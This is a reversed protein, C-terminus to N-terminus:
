VQHQQLAMYFIKLRTVNKQLNWQRKIVCRFSFSQIAVQGIKNSLFTIAEIVKSQPALCFKFVQIPNSSSVHAPM